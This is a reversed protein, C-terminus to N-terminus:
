NRRIPSAPFEEGCPHEHLPSIRDFDTRRHTEDSKETLYEYACLEVALGVKNKVSDPHVIRLVRGRCRLRMSEALTIESPMRLTVEVAAGVTVSCDTYLFAGRASLDQTLAPEGDSGDVRLM